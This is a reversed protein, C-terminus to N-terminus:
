DYQIESEIGDEFDEIFEYNYLVSYVPIQKLRNKPRVVMSQNLVMEAVDIKTPFILVMTLKIMIGEKNQQMGPM